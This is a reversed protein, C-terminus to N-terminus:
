VDGSGSGENENGQFFNVPFGIAVDSQEKVRCGAGQVRRL